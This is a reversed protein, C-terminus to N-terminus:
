WWRKRKFAVVMFIALGLMIGWVAFYGWRWELEPMYKFNMGYVGVIFTLPIFITAIITLVKMVANMRNSVSSLYVDMTSSLMDRFTQISDMVQIVHDHVDRLYVGVPESILPSRGQQLVNVAERVPWVAKRSLILDWRTKHIQELTEPSPDMLVTEQLDEIRESMQELVSFYRDVVADMLAYALYDSGMKRGRGRGKRFREKVPRFFDEETEQFSIVFDAGVILSIQEVFLQDEDGDYHLMKLVVFLDGGFEEVKARQGTHVVDELLLPHLDFIQGLKEIVSVDHIGTVKLWTTTNEAKYPACEEVAVDEREEYSDESYDVISIRVREAHREGVHVLTGPPLGAKRSAKKLFDLM